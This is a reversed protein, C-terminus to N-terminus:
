PNITYPHNMFTWSYIIFKLQLYYIAQTGLIKRKKNGLSYVKFIELAKFIIFYIKIHPSFIRPNKQTPMYPPSM